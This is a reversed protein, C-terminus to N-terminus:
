RWPTDRSSTTAPTGATCSSTPPVWAPRSLPSSTRQGCCRQKTKSECLGPLLFKLSISFIVEFYLRCGCNEIVCLNGPLVFSAFFYFLISRWCSFELLSWKLQWNYWSNLSYWFFLQRLCCTSRQFSVVCGEESWPRHPFSVRKPSRRHILAEKSLWSAM